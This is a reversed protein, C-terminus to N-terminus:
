KSDRGKKSGVGAVDVKLVLGTETGRLTIAALLRLDRNDKLSSM